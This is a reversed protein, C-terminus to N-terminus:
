FVGSLGWVGLFALAVALWTLQSPKRQKIIWYLFPTMVVYIATLFGTNTVTATVLGMQQITGALYFLLGALLALPLVKRGSQEERRSEALALPFLALAAILGRLGVFLMPGIHEMATKQFYFAVGWIMAAGLVLLDGQIGTPKFSL